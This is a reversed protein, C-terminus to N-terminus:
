DRGRASEPSRYLTAVALLSYVSLAGVLASAAPPPPGVGDNGHGRAAAAVLVCVLGLAALVLEARLYQAGHARPPLDVLEAFVSLASVAAVAVGTVLLYFAIRHLGRADAGAASLVLALPMLRSAM